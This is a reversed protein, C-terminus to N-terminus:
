LTPNEYIRSQFIPSALYAIFTIDATPYYNNIFGTLVSLTKGTQIVDDILLIRKSNLKYKKPKEYFDQIFKFGFFSAINKTLLFSLCFRSRTCPVPIIYDFDFNTKSIILDILWGTIKNIAWSKHLFKAYYLIQTFQNPKNSQHIGQYTNLWLIKM